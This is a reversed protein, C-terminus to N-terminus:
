KFFVEAMIEVLCAVNNIEQDAVLAAQYQYRALILVLTPITDEKLLPTLGEYLQRYFQTTDIDSNLAVWKRIETFNKERIFTFLEVWTEDQVAGLVESSVEKSAVYRNLKTLISRIDPFRRKVLTAVVEKDYKMGENDLIKCVFKFTQAMLEAREANPIKFEIIDLRSERLPALIRNPYNATFIFACNNAFEEIFGRLAPQFHHSLHDAEDLIVIKRGESSLSVTAAFQQITVRLTDITGDKSANIFLCDAGLEDALARAM